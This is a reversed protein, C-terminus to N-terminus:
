PVDGTVDREGLLQAHDLGLAMFLRRVERHDDGRRAWPLRRPRPPTPGPQARARRVPGVQAIAGAGPGGFTRTWAAATRRSCARTLARGRQHHNQQEPDWFTKLVGLRASVRIAIALAFTPNGRKAGYAVGSGSRHGLERGGVVAHGDRGGALGARERLEAGYRIPRFRPDRHQARHKCICRHKGGAGVQSRQEARGARATRPIPGGAAAGSRCRAWAPGLSSPPAEDRAGRARQIEASSSARREADGAQLPGGPGGSQPESRAPPCRRHGVPEAQGTGAGRPRPTRPGRLARGSAASRRSGSRGPARWRAALTSEAGALLDEGVRQDRSGRPGRRSTGARLNPSCRCTCAVAMGALLLLIVV